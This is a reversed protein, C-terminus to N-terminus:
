GKIGLSDPFLTLYATNFVSNFFWVGFYTVVVTEAVVRGVGEAGGKASLGKQCAVVGIFFGLITHKIVAAGLDYPNMIQTTAVVSTWFNQHITYTFAILHATQTVLVMLLSLVVGAITIALVRPVILAGITDVGLVELADIEERVRRAGIDGATESAIIGVLIMFTLWTSIERLLGAYVGPGFRDAAGLAYVLQGVLVSAFALVYMTSAFMMPLTATRFIESTRIITERAVSAPRRVTIKLVKWGLSVAETSSQLPRFVAMGTLYRDFNTESEDARFAALWTRGLSSV